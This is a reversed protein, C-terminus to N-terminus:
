LALVEAWSLSTVLRGDARSLTSRPITVFRGHVIVRPSGDASFRDVRGVREGDATVILERRAVTVAEAAAAVAPSQAPTTDQAFAPTAFALALAILMTKKM